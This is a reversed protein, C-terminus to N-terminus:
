AKALSDHWTLAFHTKAHLTQFEAFWQIKLKVGYDDDMQEHRFFRHSGSYQEDCWRVFNGCLDHFISDIHWQTFESDANLWAEAIKIIHQGNDYPYPFM